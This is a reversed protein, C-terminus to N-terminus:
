FHQIAYLLFSFTPRLPLTCAPGPSATLHLLDQNQLVMIPIQVSTGHISPTAEAVVPRQPPWFRSRMSWVIRAPRIGRSRPRPDGSRHLLGHDTVPPGSRSSPVSSQISRTICALSTGDNSPVTSAIRCHNGCRSPLIPGQILHPLSTGSAEPFIRLNTGSRQTQILHTRGGDMSQLMNKNTWHGSIRMQLFSSSNGCRLSESSPHDGCRTLLQTTATEAVALFTWAKPLYTQSHKTLTLQNIYLLHCPILKLSLRYSFM